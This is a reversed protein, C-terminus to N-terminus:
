LAKKSNKEERIGQGHFNIVVSISFVQKYAIYKHKICLNILNHMERGLSTIKIGKPTIYGRNLLWTRYSLHGMLVCM